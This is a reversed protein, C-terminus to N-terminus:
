APRLVDLAHVWNEVPVALGAATAVVAVNM